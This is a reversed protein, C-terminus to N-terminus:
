NRDVVGGSGSISTKVKPRNIYYVKGSGSINADILTKVNVFMDGSGSITATCQSQVLDYSKIKGSGSIVFKSDVADGQVFITGSGSINANVSQTITETQITGSGSVNLKLVSSEYKGTEISGSGSLSIGSLVPSVIRIEIPLNERLMHVGGTRIKLTKGNVNTEIYPLLNSEATVEVSYSSGPVVVVHFDGSSEIENFGEARRMETAALGNGEIFLNDICSTAVLFLSILITFTQITKM